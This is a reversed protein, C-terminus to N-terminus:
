NGCAAAAKDMAQSSNYNAFYKSWATEVCSLANSPIKVVVAVALDAAQSANYNAFYKGQAFELMPLKHVLAATSANAAKEIAQSSNYNAFYVQWLFKMEPVARVKKCSAAALDMAQSSNYNAFYKDYAFEVCGSQSPGPGTGSSLTKISDTLSSYVADLEDQSAQSDIILDEISHAARSIQQKTAHQAFASGAAFSSLIFAAIIKQYTM